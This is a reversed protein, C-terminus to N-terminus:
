FILLLMITYLRLSFYLLKLISPPPPPPPSPLSQSSFHHNHLHILPPPLFTHTSLFNYHYLFTFNM